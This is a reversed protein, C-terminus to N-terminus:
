SAGGIMEIVRSACAKCLDITSCDHDPPDTGLRVLVPSDEGCEDCRLCYTRFEASDNLTTGYAEAYARDMQAWTATPGIALVADRLKQAPAHFAAGTYYAYRDVRKEERTVLRV